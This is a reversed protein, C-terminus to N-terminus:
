KRRKDGLVGSIDYRDPNERARADPCGLIFWVWYASAPFVVLTLITFKISRIGMTFPIAFCIVGIILGAGAFLHVTRPMGFGRKAWAIIGLVTDLLGLVGILVGLLKGINAMTM